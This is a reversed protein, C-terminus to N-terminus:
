ATSKAHRTYPQMLAAPRAAYASLDVLAEMDTIGRMARAPWSMRLAGLWAAEAGLRMLIAPEALSVYEPNSMFILLVSHAIRTDM